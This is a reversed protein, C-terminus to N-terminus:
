EDDSLDNSFFIRHAINSIAMEKILKKLEDSGNKSIYQLLSQLNQEADEFEDDDFNQYDKDIIGVGNSGVQDSFGDFFVFTLVKGMLTDVVKLRYSFNNCARLLEKVVPLSSKLKKTNEDLLSSTDFSYIPIASLYTQFNM